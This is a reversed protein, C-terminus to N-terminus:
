SMLRDDYKGAGRLAVKAVGLLFRVSLREKRKSERRHLRKVTKLARNAVSIMLQPTIERVNLEERIKDALAVGVSLNLGPHQSFEEAFMAAAEGTIRAELAALIEEQSYEIEGRVDGRKVVIVYEDGGLRYVDDVVRLKHAVRTLLRDGEEYSSTDNVKKFNDVDIMLLAVVEQNELEQPSIDKFREDFARKNLLGTLSDRYATDYLRGYSEILTAPDARVVGMVTQADTNAPLGYIGAVLAVSEPLPSVPGFKPEGSGRSVGDYETSM